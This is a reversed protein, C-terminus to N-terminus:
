FQIGRHNTTKLHVSIKVIHDNEISFTISLKGKRYTRYSDTLPRGVTHYGFKIMIREAKESFSDGVSIGFISYETGDFEIDTTHYPDLCDPYGSIIYKIDGGDLTYCGFGETQMYLDTDTLNEEPVAIGIPLQAHENFTRIAARIYCARCVFFLVILLIVIGLVLLVTKKKM